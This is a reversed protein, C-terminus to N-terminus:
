ESLLGYSLGVVEILCRTTEEVGLYGKLINRVLLNLEAREQETLRHAACFDAGVIEPVADSHSVLAKLLEGKRRNDM